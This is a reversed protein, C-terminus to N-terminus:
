AIESEIWKRYPESVDAANIAVIEPVDYPHNAAIFKEVETFKEAATKILLLFEDASEIKGKWRYISRMPPMIQVCAALREQVVGRAINEATPADPSTTM